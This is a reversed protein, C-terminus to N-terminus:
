EVGWADYVGFETKFEFSEVSAAAFEAESNDKIWRAKAEDFTVNLYARKTGIWGIIHLTNM